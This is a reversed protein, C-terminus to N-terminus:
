RAKTLEITGDVTITGATPNRYQIQIVDGQQVAFSVPETSLRAPLTGATGGAQVPCEQVIEDSGATIRVLMGVATARSMVEVVGNYPARNYKWTNGSVDLPNLSTGTLMASSWTFFPM